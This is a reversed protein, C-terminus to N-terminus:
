INKSKAWLYYFSEIWEKSLGTNEVISIHYNIDEKSRRRSERVHRYELLSDGPIPGFRPGSITKVSGDLKEIVLVPLASYEIVM